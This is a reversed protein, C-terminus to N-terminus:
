GGVNVVLLMSEIVVRRVRGPRHDRPPAPRSYHEAATAKARWRSVNAVRFRGAVSAQLDKNSSANWVDLCDRSVLRLHGDLRQRALAYVSAIIPWCVSTGDVQM